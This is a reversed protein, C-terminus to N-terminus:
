LTERVAMVAVLHSRAVVELVLDGARNRLERLTVAYIETTHACGEQVIDAFDQRQLTAGPNIRGNGNDPWPTPM